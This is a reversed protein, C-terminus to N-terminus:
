QSLRNPIGEFGISQDGNSRRFPSDRLNIFMVLIVHTHVTSLISRLELEVELVEFIEAVFWDCLHEFGWLEKVNEGGFVFVQHHDRYCEM